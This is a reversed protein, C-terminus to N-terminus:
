CFALPGWILILLFVQSHLISSSFVYGMLFGLYYSGIPIHYFMYEDFHFWSKGLNKSVSKSKKLFFSHLYTCGYGMLLNGRKHLPFCHVQISLLFTCRSKESDESINVMETIFVPWLHCDPLSGQPCHPVLSLRRIYKVTESEWFRLPLCESWPSQILVWCPESHGHILPCLTLFHVSEM